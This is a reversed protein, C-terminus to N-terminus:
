AAGTRLGEVAQAVREFVEGRDDRTKQRFLRMTPYWPSDERDLLWRWDPVQKLLVFVPRGLAGALHAISTDCTIILDLNQMVAATDIFADPGADFDESLMTLGPLSGADACGDMKQISILRVGDMQALKAFYALPISRAPDAKVNPNGRWCIGIRFGQPGIRAAWNEVLPTEAALYSLKAPITALRTKFARPLSSLAIQYDYREHPEVCDIIRVPGDIGRFLRHLRKRCFFSVRAGRESLLLLYRALQIADGHGQEDFVLISCGDPDEGKWEPVPHTLAQKPTEAFFWRYEYLELGQEFDGHLLLLAAKNNNAHASSPDCALAADFGELAVEFRGLYKLAVARGCLAELYQPRLTIAKEFAALAAEPQQLKLFLNGRNSWAQPFRPQIRLANALDRDAEPLRGLVLLASGRNNLIDARDPEKALAADYSALAELPRDLNQLLNGRDILVEIFSPRLRLAEDFFELASAHHRLDNLVLGGARLAEPYAPDLRLAIDYSAIAETLRGADRLLNGRNYFLAPKVCGVRVAEDYVALADAARGLEQLALGRNSLAESNAPDLALAHDFWKLASPNQKASLYILGVLNCRLTNTESEPDLARLRALAKASKGEELFGIARHIDTDITVHL